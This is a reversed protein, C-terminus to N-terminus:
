NQTELWMQRWRFILILLIMIIETKESYIRKLSEPNEIQDREYTESEESEFDDEKIERIQDRENSKRDDIM